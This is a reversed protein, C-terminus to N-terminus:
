PTSAGVHVQTDVHEQLQGHHQPHVPADMFDRSGQQQQLNTRVLARQRGPRSTAQAQRSRHHSSSTSAMPHIRPQQPENRPRAVKTFATEDDDEPRKRKRLVQPARAQREEEEADLVRLQESASELEGCHLDYEQMRRELDEQEIELLSEYVQSELQAQRVQYVDREPSSTAPSARRFVNQSRGRYQKWTGENVELGFGDQIHDEDYGDKHRDKHGDEQQQGRLVSKENPVNNTNNHDNKGRLGGLNKKRSRVRNEAFARDVMKFPQSGSSQPDTVRSSEQEIPDEYMSWGLDSSENPEGQLPRPSIQINEHESFSVEHYQDLCEQTRLSRPEPQRRSGRATLPRPAQRTYPNQLLLEPQLPLIKHHQQQQTPGTRRLLQLLADVVPSNGDPQQEVQLAVHGRLQRHTFSGTQGFLPYRVDQMPSQADVLQEIPPAVHGHPQEHTFLGTRGLLQHRMDEMPSQAEALQAVHDHPRQRTPPGTRRLLELRANNVPMTIRAAAAVPSVLTPAGTAGKPSRPSIPIPDQAVGQGEQRTSTSKQRKDQHQPQHKVFYPQREAAALVRSRWSPIQPM